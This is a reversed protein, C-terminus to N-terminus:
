LRPLSEVGGAPASASERVCDRVSTQAVPRVMARALKGTSLMLSHSDDSGEDVVLAQEQDILGGGGEVAAAVFDDSDKGVARVIGVDGDDHDGAVTVEALVAVTDVRHGVPAEGFCDERVSAGHAVLATTM